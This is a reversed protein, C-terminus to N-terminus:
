FFLKYKLARVYLLLAHAKLRFEQSELKKSSLRSDLEGLCSRKRETHFNM